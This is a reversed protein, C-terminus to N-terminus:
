SNDTWLERGSYQVGRTQVNAVLDNRSEMRSSTVESTLPRERRALISEAGTVQPLPLDETLSPDHFALKQSASSPMDTDRRRRPGPQEPHKLLEQSAHTVGQLHGGESSSDAM